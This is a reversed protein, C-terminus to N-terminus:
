GSPDELATAELGRLVEEVDVGVGDPDPSLYTVPRSEDDRFLDKDFEPALKPPIRGATLAVLGRFDDNLRSLEVEARERRSEEAALKAKLEAIEVRADSREDIWRTFDQNGIWPM